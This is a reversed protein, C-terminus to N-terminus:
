LLIRADGERKTVHERDLYELLPIAYKRSVGTWDKFVPVSFRQGRKSALQTRLQALGTAHSAQAGQPGAVAVVLAGVLAVVTVPVFRLASRISSM